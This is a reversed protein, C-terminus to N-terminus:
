GCEVKRDFRSINRQNDTEDWFQPRQSIENCLIIKQDQNLIKVRKNAM